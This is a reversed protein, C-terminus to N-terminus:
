NIQVGHQQLAIRLTQELELRQDGDFDSQAWRVGQGRRTHFTWVLGLLSRRVEVKAIENWALRLVKGGFSRELTIGGPSISLSRTGFFAAHVEFSFFAVGACFLSTGSPFSGSTHSDWLYGILLVLITIGIALRHRRATHAEFRTERDSM